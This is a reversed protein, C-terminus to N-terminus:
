YLGGGFVVRDVQERDGDVAALLREKLKDFEDVNMKPDASRMVQVIQSEKSYVAEAHKKELWSSVRRKRIHLALSILAASLLVSYFVINTNVDEMTSLAALSALYGGVVPPAFLQWHLVMERWVFLSAIGAVSGIAVFLHQIFSSDSVSSVIAEVVLGAATGMGVVAGLVPFFVNAAISFIFTSGSVWSHCSSCTANDCASFSILTSLGITSLCACIAIQVIPHVQKLSIPYFLLLSAILGCVIPGM